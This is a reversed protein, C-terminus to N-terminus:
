EIDSTIKQALNFLLENMQAVSQSYGNEQLPVEFSFAKNISQNVELLSVQQSKYEYYGSLIIKSQVTVHFYDIQVSLEANQSGKSGKVRPKPIFKFAKSASNLDFLLSKFTAANLPEAWMHFTAYHIKHENIQMVLYPSNLYEALQISLLVAAKKSNEINVTQGRGSEKIMGVSVPNNLMYYSTTNPASSCAALSLALTIIVMTTPAMLGM